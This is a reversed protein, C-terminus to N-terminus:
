AHRVGKSSGKVCAYASFQLWRATEYIPEFGANYLLNRLATPSSPHVATPFPSSAEQMFTPVFGTNNEKFSERQTTVLLGRYRLTRFVANFMKQKYIPKIAGIAHDMFICDAQIKVRHFAEPDKALTKSLVIHSEVNQLRKCIDQLVLDPTDSIVLIIYPPKTKNLYHREVLELNVARLEGSLPLPKRKPRAMTARKNIQVDM